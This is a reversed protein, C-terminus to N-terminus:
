LERKDDMTIMKEKVVMMNKSCNAIVTTLRGKM